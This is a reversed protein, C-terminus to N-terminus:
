LFIAGQVNIIKARLIIDVLLVIVFISNFYTKLLLDSQFTMIHRINRSSSYAVM